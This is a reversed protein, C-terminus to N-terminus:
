QKNHKIEKSQCTHETKTKKKKKKENDFSFLKNNILFLLVYCKFEHEHRLWNIYYINLKM